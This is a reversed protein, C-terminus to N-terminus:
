KKRKGLESASGSASPPKEPARLEAWLYGRGDEEDMWTHWVANPPVYPKQRPQNGIAGPGLSEDMDAFTWADVDEARLMGQGKCLECTMTQSEHQAGPTFYWGQGKCLRCLIPEAEKPVTVPQAEKSLAM